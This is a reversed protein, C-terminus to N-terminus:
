LLQMWTRYQKDSKGLLYLGVGALGGYLGPDIDPQNYHQMRSLIAKYKNQYRTETKKWYQRMIEDQGSSSADPSFTKILQNTKTPYIGTQQMAYLFCLVDEIEEAKLSHAIREFKDTIGILLMKNDLTSIYDTSDCRGFVRFLLYRGLGSLGTFLSIDAHNGFVTAMFIVRDLEELVDNTDVEMFSNQALYEIGTGIGALGDAYNMVHEKQIQEQICNMLEMARDKFSHDGTYRAYHFFFIVLGMKGHMLGPDSVDMGRQM